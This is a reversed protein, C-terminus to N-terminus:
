DDRQSTHWFLERADWRSCRKSDAMLSWGYNAIASVMEKSELSVVSELFLNMNGKAGDTSFSAEEESEDAHQTVTDVDSLRLSLLKNKATLYLFETSSRVDVEFPPLEQDITFHSM